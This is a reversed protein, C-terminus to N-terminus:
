RWWRGGASVTVGAVDPPSTQIQLDPTSLGERTGTGLLGSAEAHGRELCGTLGSHGWGYLM